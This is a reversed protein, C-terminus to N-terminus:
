RVRGEGARGGHLVATRNGSLMVDAQGARLDGAGARQSRAHQGIAADAVIAIERQVGTAREIHM